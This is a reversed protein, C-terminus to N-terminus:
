AEGEPLADHTSYAYTGDKKIFSVAVPTAEDGGLGLETDVWQYTMSILRLTGRAGAYQEGYTTRFGNRNLHDALETVSMKKENLSLFQALRWIYLKKRSMDNM